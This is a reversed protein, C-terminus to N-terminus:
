LPKKVPMFALDAWHSMGDGRVEGGAFIETPDGHFQEQQVPASARSVAGGREAPSDNSLQSPLTTMATDALIDALIPNGGAEQRVAEKLLDTPQRGGGLPTDLRPDFTPRQRGGSAQAPQRRRGEAVAPRAVPSGVSPGLGEQLIEVLLERVLSKLQDRTAKM